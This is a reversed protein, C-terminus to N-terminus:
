NQEIKTISNFIEILSGILSSHALVNEPPFYLRISGRGNVGTEAFYSMELYATRMEKLYEVIESVALRDNLFEDLGSFDFSLANGGTKKEEINSNKVNNGNTLNENM